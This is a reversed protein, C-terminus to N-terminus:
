EFRQFFPIKVVSFLCYKLSSFSSHCLCCKNLEMDYVVPIVESDFFKQIFAFIHKGIFITKTQKCFDDNIGAWPFAQILTFTNSHADFVENSSSSNGGILYIKNKVAVSGHNYRKDLILKCILISQLKLDTEM